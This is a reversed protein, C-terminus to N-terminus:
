TCGPTGTAFALNLQRTLTGGLPPVVISDGNTWCTKSPSGPQMGKIHITYNDAAVGTATVAQDTEICPGVAPNTCDITYSSALAGSIVSAGIQLTIPACALDSNRTMTIQTSTIGGATPGAPTGCNTTRGTALHLALAGTADLAFALPALRTNTGSSITISHQGPATALNGTAAVLAFDFDYVGPSMAQSQGMLTSCAFVQTNGGEVAQNHTLVTVSQAGVQDCTIANNGTDGLAWDLTFTGGPPPQDIVRADPFGGGSGCAALLGLGLARLGLM